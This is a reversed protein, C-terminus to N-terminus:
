DVKPFSVAFKTWEGEVSTLKIEGKLINVAHKVISLGLGTGNQRGTRSSDARFFREFIRNRLARPIGIGTDLVEVIAFYGDQSISVEVKGNEKNYKVANELINFLIEDLLRPVAMIKVNKDVDEAILEIQINKKDTLKSFLGIQANQTAMKQMIRSVASEAYDYLKVKDFVLEGHEDLNSIQIIDNILTLLHQAESHIKKGIEEIDEKKAFGTSILESYGSIVSLPTKLEHSVNASFERRLKERDAQESVDVLLIATGKKIGAVIITNAIIKLTKGNLEFSVDEKNEEGAYNIAYRFKNNRCMVLVNQGIFNENSRRGLLKKASDNCHLVNNDKDLILLGEQMNAVIIEFQSKRKQLKAIQNAVIDNQEKIRRLFPTLEDYVLSDEPHELDIKNIPRVISQTLIKAVFFVVISGVIVILFMLPVFRSPYLLSDNQSVAVRIIKDDDRKQAIYITQKGTTESVRVAEGIGYKSASVVESRSKHHQMVRIDRHNDFLIDGNSDILTIRYNTLNPRLSDLYSVGSIDVGTNIIKLLSNMGIRMQRSAETFSVYEILVATILISAICLFFTAAFIIKKM